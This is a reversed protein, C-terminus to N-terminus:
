LFATVTRNSDQYINSKACSCISKIMFDIKLVGLIPEAAHDYKVGLVERVVNATNLM